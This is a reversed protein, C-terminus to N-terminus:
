QLFFFIWFIAKWQHSSHHSSHYHSCNQGWAGESTHAHGLVTHFTTFELKDSYCCLTYSVNNEPYMSLMWQAPSETTTKCANSIGGRGYEDPGHLNLLIYAAVKKEVINLRDVKRDM